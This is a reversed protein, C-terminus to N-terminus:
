PMGTGGSMGGGMGGAATGAQAGHMQMIAMIAAWFAALSAVLGIYGGLGFWFAGGLWNALAYAAFSLTAGISLLVTPLGLMARLAAFFLFLSVVAIGLFYWGAYASQGAMGADLGARYGMILASWFMFFVAHWAEGRLFSALAAILLAITAFTVVSHLTGIGPTYWGAYVMSYMWSMIAFASFGLAKPDAVRDGM